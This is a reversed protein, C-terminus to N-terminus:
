NLYTAFRPTMHEVVEGGISRVVFLAAINRSTAYKLGEEPGLVTLATALADAHM